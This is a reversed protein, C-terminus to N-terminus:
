TNLAQQNMLIALHGFATLHEHDPATPFGTFIVKETTIKLGELAAGHEAEYESVANIFNMIAFTCSDDKLKEVLGEEM